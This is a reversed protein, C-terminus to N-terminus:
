FGSSAATIKDKNATVVQALHGNEPKIQCYVVAKDTTVLKALKRLKQIRNTIERALGEEKLSDDETTDLM